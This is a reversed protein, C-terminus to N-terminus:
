NNDDLSEDKGLLIRFGSELVARSVQNNCIAYRQKQDPYEKNMVKDGMCRSIFKDHKENKHPKPIPM